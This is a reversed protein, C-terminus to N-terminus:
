RGPPNAPSPFAPEDHPSTAVIGPSSPPSRASGGVGRLRATRTSLSPDLNAHGRSWGEAHRGLEIDDVCSRPALASKIPFLSERASDNELSLLDFLILGASTFYHRTSKPRRPRNTLELDCDLGCSLALSVTAVPEVFAEATRRYSHEATVDRSFQTNTPPTQQLRAKAVQAQGLESRVLQHVHTGIQLGAAAWIHSPGLNQCIRYAAPRERICASSVQCSCTFSKERTGIGNPPSWQAERIRCLMELMQCRVSTKPTQSEAVVETLPVSM